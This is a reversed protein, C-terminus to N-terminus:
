SQAQFWERHVTVPQNGNQLLTQISLPFEWVGIYHMDWLTYLMNYQIYKAHVSCEVILGVNDLTKFM